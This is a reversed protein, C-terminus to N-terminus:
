KDIDELMDEAERILDEARKRADEVVEDSKKKADSSTQAAEYTLDDVLRQIEDIYNKLRYSLIDRTNRGKDPAYLLACVGGVIAGSVLGLTYNKTKSM